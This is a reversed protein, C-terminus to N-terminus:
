VHTQRYAAENAMRASHAKKLAWRHLLILEDQLMARPALYYLKLATNAITGFALYRASNALTPKKPNEM